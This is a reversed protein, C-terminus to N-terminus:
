SGTGRETSRSATLTRSIMARALFPLAEDQFDIRPAFDRVAGELVLLSLIPFVFQPDAYLGYRRQIDFLQTAFRVLDFEAASVGTNAAVLASIDRRFGETDTDPSATATSLVVDACATGKGVSMYYFFSSFKDQADQSLRVTFGADVIVASGPGLYLNGPHLDCHVLGDLFLMQYVAHLTHMVAQTREAEPMDSPSLRRLDDIFEMVLVEDGCLEDRVRPIRVSDHEALNARLLALNHREQVFDLQAYVAGTLQAVIQAVPVGRFPPLHALLRAAHRMIAMDTRLTDEIGPRRVKVAVDAGDPLTTRYVCAISGSAVPEGALTMLERAIPPDFSRALVPELEEAPIPPGSDYLTALARCWHPPLLDARTSLMQAVKIFAPGLETITGVLWSRSGATRDRRLRARCAPWLGNAARRALVGVIELLRRLVVLTDAKPPSTGGATGTTGAAVANEGSEAM